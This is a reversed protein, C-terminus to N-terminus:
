AMPVKPRVSTFVKSIASARRKFTLSTFLATLRSFLLPTLIMFVLPVPAVLAFLRTLGISSVM